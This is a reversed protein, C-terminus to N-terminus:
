KEWPILGGKSTSSFTRLLKLSPSMSISLAAFAMALVLLGGGAFLPVRPRPQRFVLPFILVGALLLILAPREFFWFYLPVQFHYIPDKQIGLQAVAQLTFEINREFAEVYGSGTGGKSFENIGVVGALCILGPILLALTVGLNAQLQKRSVGKGIGKFLSGFGAALGVGGVYPWASVHTFFAALGFVCALGARLALPGIPATKLPWARARVLQAFGFLNVGFGLTFFLKIGTYGWWTLGAILTLSTYYFGLLAWWFLWPSGFARVFLRHIWFGAFGFLLLNLFGISDLSTFGLLEGILVQVWAALYFLTPKTYIGRSPILPRCLGWGEQHFCQVLRDTEEAFAMEDSPIFHLPYLYAFYSLALSLHLALFWSCKWPAGWGKPTPSVLAPTELPKTTPDLFRRFLPLCLFCLFIAVLARLGWVLASPALWHKVKVASQALAGIEKPTLARSWLGVQNLLMGDIGLAEQGGSLVLLSAGDLPYPHGFPGQNTLVGDLYLAVENGEPKLVLAVHYYRGVELEAAEMNVKGASADLHFLRKELNYYLGLRPNSHFVGPNSLLILNRYGASIQPPMIFGFALTEGSFPRENLPTALLYEPNASGSNDAGLGLYQGRMRMRAPQSSLSGSDFGLATEPVSNLPLWFVPNPVAPDLADSVKSVKEAWQRHIESEAFPDFSHILLAFLFLALAGKLSWFTWALPSRGPPRM